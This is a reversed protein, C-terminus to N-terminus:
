WQLYYIMEGKFIAGEVRDFLFALGFEAGAVGGRNPARPSVANAM